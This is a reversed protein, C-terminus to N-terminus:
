VLLITPLTLHTYSVTKLDKPPVSTFLLRDRTLLHARHQTIFESSSQTEPKIYWHIKPNEHLDFLQHYVFENLFVDVQAEKSLIVKLFSWVIENHKSFELISIRYSM